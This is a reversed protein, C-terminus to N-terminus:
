DDNRDNSARQAWDKGEFPDRHAPPTRRPQIDDSNPVPQFPPVVEKVVPENPAHLEADPADYLDAQARYGAQFIERDTSSMKTAVSWFYRSAGFFEYIRVWKPNDPALPVELYPRKEAKSTTIAADIYATLKAREAETPDLEVAPDVFPDHDSIPAIPWGTHQEITMSM